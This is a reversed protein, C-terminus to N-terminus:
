RSHVEFRFWGAKLEEDTLKMYKKADVLMRDILYEDLFVMYKLFAVKYAETDGWKCIPQLIGIMHEVEERSFAVEVEWLSYWDDVNQTYDAPLVENKCEIFFMYEDFENDRDRNDNRYFPIIRIWETMEKTDIIENILSILQEKDPYIRNYGDNIVTRDYILGNITGKQRKIKRRRM